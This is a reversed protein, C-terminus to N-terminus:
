RRVKVGHIIWPWSRPLYIRAWSGGTSVLDLLVFDYEKGQAGDITITTDNLLGLDRTTLQGKYPTLVVTQDSRAGLQKISSVVGPMIAGHSPKM